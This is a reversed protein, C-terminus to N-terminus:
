YTLIAWSRPSIEPTNPALADLALRPVHIDSARAVAFERGSPLWIEFGARRAKDAIAGSRGDQLMRGSVAYVLRKKQLHKVEQRRNKLHVRCAHTCRITPSRPLDMRSVAFFIAQLSVGLDANLLHM